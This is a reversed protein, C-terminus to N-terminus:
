EGILRKLPYLQNKQSTIGAELIEIKSKANDFELHSHTPLPKFDRAEGQDTIEGTRARNNWLYVTHKYYECSYSGSGDGHYRVPYNDQVELTIDYEDSKIFASSGKRGTSGQSLQAKEDAIRLIDTLRDKDKSFLQFGKTLSFGHRLSDLLKPVVENAFDHVRNMCDCRNNLVNCKKTTLM